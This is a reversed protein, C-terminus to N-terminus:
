RSIGNDRSAAQPAYGIGEQQAALAAVHTNVGGRGVDGMAKTMALDNQNAAVFKNLDELSNAGLIGYALEATKECGAIECTAHATEFEQVQAEAAATAM